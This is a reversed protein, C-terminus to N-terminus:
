EWPFVPVGKKLEEHNISYNIIGFCPKDTVPYDEDHYVVDKIIVDASEPNYEIEFEFFSYKCKSM